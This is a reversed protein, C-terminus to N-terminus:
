PTYETITISSAIATGFVVGTTGCFAITAAAGCGARFRFTTASTTGAVVYYTLTVTHPNNLTDEWETGATLAETAHLDTNFLAGNLNRSAAGSSLMAKVEVLLINTASKPTIALTMFETGESILPISGDRAIVSTGTAHTATQFNVVQVVQQKTFTGAEDKATDYNVIDTTVDTTATVSATSVASGTITTAM